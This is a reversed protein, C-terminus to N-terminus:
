TVEDEYTLEAEIKEFHKFRNEWKVGTSELWAELVLNTSEMDSSLLTFSKNNKHRWGFVKM